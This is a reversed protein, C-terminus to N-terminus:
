WLMEFPNISDLINIGTFIFFGDGIGASVALDHYIIM